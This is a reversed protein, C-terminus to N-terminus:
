VSRIQGINGEEIRDWDNVHACIVLGLEDLPDLARTLPEPEELDDVMPNRQFQAFIHQIHDCLQEMQRILFLRAQNCSRMHFFPFDKLVIDLILVSLLLNTHPRLSEKM